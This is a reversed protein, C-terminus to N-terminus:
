GAPCTDPAPRLRSRRSRRRPRSRPSCPRPSASCPLPIVAGAIVGPISIRLFTNQDLTHGAVATRRLRDAAPLDRDLDPRDVVPIQIAAHLQRAHEAEGLVRDFGAHLLLDRAALDIHEDRDVDGRVRLHFNREVARHELPIERCQVRDCLVITHRVVDRHRRQRPHRIHEDHFLLFLILLLDRRVDQRHHVLRDSFVARHASHLARCQLGIEPGPALRDECQDLAHLLAAGHRQRFVAPSQGVLHLLNQLRGRDILAANQLLGGDVSVLDSHVFLGDAQPAM